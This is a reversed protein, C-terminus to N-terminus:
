LTLGGTIPLEAGTIQSSEDSLLFVVGSVNDADTQLRGMPMVKGATAALWGADKGQAKRLALEGPTAVWGMTVWNARIRDAAYNKAVHKTLALMAAKSCAYAARDKDGAYAHLSGMNVISGGGVKLMQEVAYRTCYFASKVNTAFIDDFLEEDTDLLPCIPLIGTYNVLGDIRGFRKVGSCILNACAELQRVDGQVFLADQAYRAQIEAVVQAGDAANRGGVVV